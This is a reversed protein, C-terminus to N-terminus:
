STSGSSWARDAGRRKTFHAVLLGIAGLGVLVYIIRSMVSMDGFLAAVIDMGFLGVLGWNLAGIIVLIFCIATLPNTKM